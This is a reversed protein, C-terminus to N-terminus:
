ESAAKHCLHAHAPFTHNASVDHAAIQFCCTWAGPYFATPTEGHSFSVSPWLFTDPFNMAHNKKLKNLELVTSTWHQPLKQQLAFRNLQVCKCPSAETGDEGGTIPRTM